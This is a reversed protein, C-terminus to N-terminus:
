MLISLDAKWSRKTPGSTKLLYTTSNNRHARESGSYFGISREWEIMEEEEEDESCGADTTEELSQLWLSLSHSLSLSLPSHVLRSRSCSSTRHSCCFICVSWHSVQINWSRKWRSGEKQKKKGYIEQICHYEKKKM